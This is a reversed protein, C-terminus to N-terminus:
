RPLLSLLKQLMFAGSGLCIWFSMLIAPGFPFSRNDTARLWVAGFVVGLLGALALYLLLPGLPLALGGVAILKTDGMGLGSRGNLARFGADLLVGSILAIVAVALGALVAGDGAWRWAFALVALVAILVNPLQEQEMDIVALAMMVPTMAMLLGLHTPQPVLAAAAVFLAATALEIVPYRWSINAGCHRCAGKHFIWSFLPVLDRASLVHRCAPCRSRGHAISEGRPLRYSLATIFSGFVLGFAAAIVFWLPESIMAM